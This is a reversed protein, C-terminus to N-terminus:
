CFSRCPKRPVRLGVRARVSLLSAGPQKLFQLFAAFIDSHSGPQDVDCRESKYSGMTCTPFGLSPASVPAGAGLRRQWVTTLWLM